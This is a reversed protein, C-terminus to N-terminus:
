VTVTMAEGAPAAAEGSGAAPAGVPACAALAAGMGVLGAAQLFHRRSMKAQDM